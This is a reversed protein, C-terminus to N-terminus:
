QRPSTKTKRPPLRSSSEEPSEKKLLRTSGATETLGCPWHSSVTPSSHSTTKETLISNKVMNYFNEIAENKVYYDAAEEFYWIGHEYYFNMESGDSSTLRIRNLKFLNQKTAAFTYSGLINQISKTKLSRLASNLSILSFIVLCLIIFLSKKSM